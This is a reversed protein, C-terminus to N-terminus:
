LPLSLSDSARFLRRKQPELGPGGRTQARGHAQGRRSRADNGSPPRADSRPRRLPIGPSLAGPLRAPRAPASRLRRGRGRGRRNRFVRPHGHLGGRRVALAAGPLRVEVGPVWSLIRGSLRERARDFIEPVDQFSEGCLAVNFDLGSDALPFLAEFFAEPAKDFEWRSNWLVTLPGTKPAPERFESLDLPPPIVRARGQISEPVGEPRFDPFRALLAAAASTFSDLHFRSNFALRDAALASIVNTLGFHFDREDEVRVPYTLQNEHFYVVKLTNRLWAPGLALFAGLDLYDSALLVDCPVLTEAQRALVMAGGRMRWKWKRAPLTLLETEFLGRSRLGDVMHRHSTGYYPEVILVRPDM